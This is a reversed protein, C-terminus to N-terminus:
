HQKSNASSRMTEHARVKTDRGELLNHQKGSLLTSTLSIRLMRSQWGGLYGVAESAQEATV